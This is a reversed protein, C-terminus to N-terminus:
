EIQETRQCIARSDRERESSKMRTSLPQAANVGSAITNESETGEYKCEIVAIHIISTTEKAISAKCIRINYLILSNLNGSVNPM